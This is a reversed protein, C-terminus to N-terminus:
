RCLELKGNVYKPAISDSRGRFVYYVTGKLCIEGDPTGSRAINEKRAQEERAKIEDRKFILHYVIFLIMIALLTYMFRVVSPDSKDSM